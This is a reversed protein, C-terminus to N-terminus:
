TTCESGEELLLYIQVNHDTPDEKGVSVELKDNFEVPTITLSELINGEGGESFTGIVGITCKDCLSSRFLCATLLLIATWSFRQKM